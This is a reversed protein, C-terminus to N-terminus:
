VLEGVVVWTNAAGDKYRARCSTWQTPLTTAKASLTAGGTVAITLTNTGINVIEIEFGDPLGSGLTLTFAASNTDCEVIKYNNDVDDITAASSLGLIERKLIGQRLNFKTIDSAQDAADLVPDKVLLAANNDLSDYARTTTGNPFEPM